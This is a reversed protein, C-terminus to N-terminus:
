YVSASTRSPCTAGGLWPGPSLLFGSPLFPQGPQTVDPLPAQFFVGLSLIPPRGPVQVWLVGTLPSLPPAHGVRHCLSPDQASSLLQGPIHNEQGQFGKEVWSQAAWHAPCSCGRGGAPSYM